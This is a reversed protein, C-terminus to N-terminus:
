GLWKQDIEDLHKCAMSWTDFSRSSSFGEYITEVNEHRSDSQIKQYLDIVKERPGELVQLFLNDKFLLIGTIGLAANKKKALNVINEVDQSTVRSVPNSKYVLNFIM